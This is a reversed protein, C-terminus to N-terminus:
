FFAPLGQLRQGQGRFQIWDELGELVERSVRTNSLAAKLTCIRWSMVWNQAHPGSEKPLVPGDECTLTTERGM